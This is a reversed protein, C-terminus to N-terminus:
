LQFNLIIIFDEELGTLETQLLIFRPCEKSKLNNESMNLKLEIALMRMTSLFIIAEIQLIDERIPYFKKEMTDYLVIEDINEDELVSLIKQICDDCFHTKMKQASVIGRGSDLTVTSRGMAPYATIMIRGESIEDYGATLLTTNNQKQTEVSEINDYIDIGYLEGTNLFVLNMRKLFFDQDLCCTDTTNPIYRILEEIDQGYQSYVLDHRITQAIKEYEDDTATIMYSAITRLLEETDQQYKHNIWVNTIIIGMTILFVIIVSKLFINKIKIKKLNLYSNRLQKWM